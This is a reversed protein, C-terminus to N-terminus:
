EPNTINTQYVKLKVRGMRLLEGHTQVVEHANDHITKVVQDFRDPHEIEWEAPVSARENNTEIAWTNSWVSNLFKDVSEYFLRRKDELEADLFEHEPDNWERYFEDLDKLCDQRFSFGAFNHTHVFHISRNSPVLNLFQQFLVKDVARQDVSDQYEMEMKKIAATLDKQLEMQHSALRTEYENAVSNEIRSGAWKKGLWLLLGFVVTGSAMGSGINSIFTNWDM